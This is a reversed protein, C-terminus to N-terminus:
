TGSGTDSPAAAFLRSAFTLDAAISLGAKYGHTWVPNAASAEDTPGKLSAALVARRWEKLLEDRYADIRREGEDHPCASDLAASLRDRASVETM